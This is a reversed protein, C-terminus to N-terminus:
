PRPHRARRRERRQQVAPEQAWGFAGRGGRPERDLASIGPYYDFVLEGSAAGLAMQFAQARGGMVDINRELAAFSAPM